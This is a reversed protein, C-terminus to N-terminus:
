KEKKLVIRKEALSVSEVTYGAAAIAIPMMHTRSLHWYARYKRASMCLNDSIIREIDSFSLTVWEKECSDLYATLPQFKYM